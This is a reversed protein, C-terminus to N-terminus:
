RMHDPYHARQGGILKPRTRAANIRANGVFRQKFRLPVAVKKLQMGIMTEGIDIGADAQIEEVLIPHEMQKYAYSAMSGGATPVPIATVEEYKSQRAINKDMVIARNLHECCQFALTVGSNKQLRQLEEFLIAAIEESGSTGIRQGAVESTSCGVVFLDGSTLYDSALWEDVIDAMHGRIAHLESM